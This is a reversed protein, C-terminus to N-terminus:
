RKAGARSADDDRGASMFKPPRGRRRQGTSLAEVSRIVQDLRDREARLENLIKYVDIDAMLRIEKAIVPNLPVIEFYFRGSSGVVKLAVLHVTIVEVLSTSLLTPRTGILM